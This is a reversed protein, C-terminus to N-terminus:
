CKFITIILMNNLKIKLRQVILNNIKILILLLLQNFLSLILIIKTILTILINFLEWIFIMQNVMNLYIINKTKICLNWYIYYIFVQYKNIIKYNTILNNNM